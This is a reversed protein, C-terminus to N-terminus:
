NEVKSRPKRKIAKGDMEFGAAKAQAMFDAQLMDGGDKLVRAQVQPWLKEVVDLPLVKATAFRDALATALAPSVAELERYYGATEMVERGKWGEVGMMVLSNRAEAMALKGLIDDVAGRDRRSVQVAGTATDVEPKIMDRRLDNIASVAARARTFPHLRRVEAKATGIAIWAKTNEDQKNFFDTAAKADGAENLQEWSKRAGELKGTRQSVLDFFARTSSAGRSGDKIFSKTIVFDDWGGIPKDSTAYDSLSLTTRGLSTTFNLIMQDILV